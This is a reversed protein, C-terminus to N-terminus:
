GTSAVQAKVQTRSRVLYAVLGLVSLASGVAAVGIFVGRRHSRMLQVMNKNDAAVLQRALNKVFVPSPRVPVLARKIQETLRLLAEVEHRQSPVQKLYPERNAVGRNLSDAYAVLIDALVKDAM